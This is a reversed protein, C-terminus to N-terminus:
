HAHKKMATSKILRFVMTAVFIGLAMACAVSLAYKGRDVFRTVDKQMLALLSYFMAAGPVLPVNVPIVFATVPTKILRAMIESYVTGVGAAVAYSLVEMLGMNMSVLYTLWSLASGIAVYILKKSRLGCMMAFGFSSIAAWLVPLIYIKLM